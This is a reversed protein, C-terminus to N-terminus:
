AVGPDEKGIVSFAWAREVCNFCVNCRGVTLGTCSHSYTLLDEIGEKFYLDIIDDKTLDYFPLVLRRWEYKSKSRVPPMSDITIPPISNEAVYILDYKGTDLLLQNAKAIVISHDADGDGIISPGSINLGLKNNVYQVIKPSYNAGGDPRPCTYTSLTVPSNTAKLEKALLYLMLASDAGGSLAVMINKPTNPLSIDIKRNNLTTYIM